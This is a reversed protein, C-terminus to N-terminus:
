LVIGRQELTTRNFALMERAVKLAMECNNHSSYTDSLEQMTEEYEATANLLKFCEAAQKLYRVSGEKQSRSNAIQAQVRLVWGQHLHLTPLLIRAKQCAEEAHDLKGSMLQIKALEAYAIGAEETKRLGQLEECISTLQRIAEEEHGQEARLAQYRVQTTLKRTMSNIAEFYFIARQACDVSQELDDALRYSQALKMFLEGLAQFDERAEFLPLLKQYTLTAEHVRGMLTRVEALVTLISTLLFDDRVGQQQEFHELSEMLFHEALQYRRRKLELQGFQYHVRALMSRNGLSTGQEKLKKFTIEAERIQNTQLYCSGIDYLIEAPILKGNNREQVHLLLQLAGAYEGAAMMSRAIKYESLVVLNLEVNSTLDEISVELKEAIRVLVSYSPKAKDAEIQSVMSSTCISEALETQTLGKMMRFQRIRKGLTEL